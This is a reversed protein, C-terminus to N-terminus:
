VSANKPLYKFLILYSSVVLFNKYPHKSFTVVSTTSIYQFYEISFWFYIFKIRTNWNKKFKSGITSFENFVEHVFEVQIIWSYLFLFSGTGLNLKHSNELLQNYLIKSSNSQMFIKLKRNLNSTLLQKKVSSLQVYLKIM